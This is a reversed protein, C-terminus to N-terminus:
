FNINEMSKGKKKLFIGIRYELNGTKDKIYKTKEVLSVFLAPMAVKTFREIGSSVGGRVLVFTVSVLVPAM